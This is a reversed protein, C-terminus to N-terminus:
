TTTHINHVGLKDRGVVKGRQYSHPEKQKTLLNIQIMKFIRCILSIMHYKDKKTQKVESQTTVGLDMCTAAFPLIEAKKTASYYDM